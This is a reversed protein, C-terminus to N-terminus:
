SNVPHWPATIRFWEAAAHMEPTAQFAEARVKNLAEELTVSKNDAMYAIVMRGTIRTAEYLIAAQELLDKYFAEMRDVAADVEAKKPPNNLSWFLGRIGLNRGVASHANDKIEKAQDLSLNDPNIIDMAIKRADSPILTTENSELNTQPVMLPQPLSTYMSYRKKSMNGLVKLHGLIPNDIEHTLRSVNYLWVRYEVPPFTPWLGLAPCRNLCKSIEYNLKPVTCNAVLPPEKKEPETAADPMEAWEKASIEDVKLVWDKDKISLEDVRQPDVLLGKSAIKDKKKISLGGSSIWLSTAAAAAVVAPVAWHLLQNM